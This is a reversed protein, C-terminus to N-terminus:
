VVCYHNLGAKVDFDSGDSDFHVTFMKKEPMAKTVVGVALEHQFALQVRTGKALVERGTPM